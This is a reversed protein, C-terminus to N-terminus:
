TLIERLIDKNDYIWRYIDEVITRMDIRPRWGSTLSIKRHDTIYLRLDAPRNELDVGIDTKTGTIERCIETLELLSTSTALGGGVNFVEGSLTEMHRIQHLILRLLDDVHLVDRVQKGKGGFGLYSLKGQFLHRAVWLVIVGQDVRGMQWPGSLVGCRNIIVPIEYMEKYELLLHESCLKTAGYLSRAGFLTFDETIGEASVGQTTQNPDLCFRTSDEHYPLSNMPLVPYVRSSSQFMIGADYRRALELCNLTGGLNTEVVYRPDRSYGALVSPDASCDVILDVRGISELDVMNRVDGHLFRVGAAKLRPVNLEVGSRRLNDLAIVDYGLKERIGMALHSGVFGAGGTILVKSM